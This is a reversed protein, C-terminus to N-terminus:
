EFADWMAVVSEAMRVPNEVFTWGREQELNRREAPTLCIVVNPDGGPACIEFQLGSSALLPNILDRLGVTDLMPDAASVHRLQTRQGNIIANVIVPDVPTDWEETVDEVQMSGRTIAAWERLTTAYAQTDQYVSRRDRWWVREVGLGVLLLDTADASAGGAPSGAIVIWNWPLDDRSARRGIAERVVDITESRVHRYRRRELEDYLKEVLQMDSLHAENAFFGLGRLARISDGVPLAALLASQLRTAVPRTVRAIVISIAIWIAAFAVLVGIGALALMWGLSLALPSMNLM